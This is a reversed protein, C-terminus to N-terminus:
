YSSDDGTGESQNSIQNRVREDGLQSEGWSEWM